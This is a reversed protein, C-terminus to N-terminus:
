YESMADALNGGNQIREAIDNWMAAGRRRRSQEAATRLASLLTLGSRLMVALQQLAIEIDMSRPPLWSLPNFSIASESSAAPQVSIVLLGRSKLMGALAAASSAEERGSQPRGTASRAQFAFVPM